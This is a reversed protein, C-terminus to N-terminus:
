FGRYSTQRMRIFSCNSSFLLPAVTQIRIFASQRSFCTWCVVFTNDILFKIMNIDIESCQFFLTTQKQLTLYTRGQCLNNYRRQDNKKHFVTPGDETIQREALLLSDHLYYLPKINNYHLLIPKVPPTITILM